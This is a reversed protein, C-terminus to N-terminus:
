DGDDGASIVEAEWIGASATDFDSEVAYSQGGTIISAAGSTDVEIQVTEGSGLDPVEGRPYLKIVDGTAVDPFAPEPLLKIVPETRLDPFRSAGTDETM